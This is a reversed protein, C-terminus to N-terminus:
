NPKLFVQINELLLLVGFFGDSINQWTNGADTTKWVGGGTTGMYFLNSKESVGTVAASRGGRFPGINRWKIASFYENSVKTVNKQANVKANASIFICIALFLFKKM